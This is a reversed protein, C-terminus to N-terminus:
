TVNNLHINSTINTVCLFNHHRYRCWCHLLKILIGVDGPRHICWGPVGVYGDQDTFMDHGNQELIQHHYKLTGGVGTRVKGMSM